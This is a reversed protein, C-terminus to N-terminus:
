KPVVNSPPTPPAVPEPPPVQHVVITKDPPADSTAPPTASNAPSSSPMLSTPTYVPTTYPVTIAPAVANTVIGAPMTGAPATYIWTQSSTVPALNMRAYTQSAATPEYAPAWYYQRRQPDFYMNSSSGHVYGTTVPWGTAYSTGVQHLSYGCVSCRSRRLRPWCANATPSMSVICLATAMALISASLWRTRFSSNGQCQRSMASDESDVPAQVIPSIEIEFLSSM